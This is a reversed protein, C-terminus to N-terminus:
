ITKNSKATLSGKGPPLRYIMILMKKKNKKKELYIWTLHYLITNGGKMCTPIM